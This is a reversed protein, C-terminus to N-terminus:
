SFVSLEVLEDLMWISEVLRERFVQHIFQHFSNFIQVVISNDMSIDFWFIQEDVFLTSQNNCIKTECLSQFLNIATAQELLLEIRDDFEFIVNSRFDVVRRLYPIVFNRQVFSLHFYFILLAVFLFVYIVIVYIPLHSFLCHEWLVVTLFRVNECTTSSQKHHVHLRWRESFSNRSVRIVFTKWTGDFLVEPFNEFANWVRLLESFKNFFSQLFIWILAVTDILYFSALEQFDIRFSHYGFLKDLFNLFSIPVDLRKALGFLTLITM